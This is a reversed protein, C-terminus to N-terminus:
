RVEEMQHAMINDAYRMKKGKEKKKMTAVDM